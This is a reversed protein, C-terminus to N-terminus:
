GSEWFVLLQWSTLAPCDTDQQPELPYWDNMAWRRHSRFSNLFLCLRSSFNLVEVEYNGFSSELFYGPSSALNPKRCKREQLARLAGPPGHVGGESDGWAGLM